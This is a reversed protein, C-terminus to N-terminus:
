CGEGGGGGGGGKRDAGDITIRPLAEGNWETKSNMLRVEGGGEKDGRTGKGGEQPNGKTSILVWESIQRGLVRRLSSVVVMGYEQKDGGHEEWSHKWLCNDEQEVLEGTMHLMDGLFGNKEFAGM